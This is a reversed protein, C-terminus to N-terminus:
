HIFEYFISPATHNDIIREVIQRQLKKLDIKLWKDGFENFDCMNLFNLHQSHLVYHSIKAIKATFVRPFIQRIKKGPPHPILKDFFLKLQDFIIPEQVYLFNHRKSIMQLTSSGLCQNLYFFDGYFRVLFTHVYWSIGLVTGWFPSFYLFFHRPIVGMNKILYVGLTVFIGLHFYEIHTRVLFHM